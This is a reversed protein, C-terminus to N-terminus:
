PLHKRMPRSCCQSLLRRACKTIRYGATLFNNFRHVLSQVKHDHQSTKTPIKFFVGEGVGQYIRMGAVVLNKEPRVGRGVGDAIYMNWTSCRFWNPLMSRKNKHYFTSMKINWLMASGYSAYGLTSLTPPPTGEWLPSYPPGGIFIKFNEPCITCEQNSYGFYEFWVM